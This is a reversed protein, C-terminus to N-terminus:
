FPLCKSRFALHSHPQIKQSVQKAGTTTTKTGTWLDTFVCNDFKSNAVKYAVPDYEFDLEKEDDWNIILTAVYAGDEPHFGQVQYVTTPLGDECGLVCTAQKGFMDQNIDILQKNKLIDMSEKTINTLDCGIILPAKAFAWLAFHTKEEELTLLNNGIQLSDPDNWHGPSANKANLQNKLFNAKIFQWQNTNTTYIEIDQTTRWSNAITYGWDAIRENGWNCIAYYIDRGSNVLAQSM